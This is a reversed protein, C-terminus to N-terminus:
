YWCCRLENLLVSCLTTESSKVLMGSCCCCCCCCLLSLSLSLSRKTNGYWFLAAYAYFSFPAKLYPPPLGLFLAVGAKGLSIKLALVVLWFVHGQRASNSQTAKAYKHMALVEWILFGMLTMTTEHVQFTDFASTWLDRMQQTSSAM